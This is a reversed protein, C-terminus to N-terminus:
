KSPIEHCWQDCYGESLDVVDCEHDEQAVDKDPEQTSENEGNQCDSNITYLILEVVVTRLCRILDVVVALCDMQRVVVAGCKALTAVESTAWLGLGLIRPILLLARM